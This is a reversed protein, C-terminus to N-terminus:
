TTEKETEETISVLRAAHESYIGASKLLGIVHIGAETLYPDEAKTYGILGRTFVQHSVAACIGAKWMDDDKAHLGVLFRIQDHTLSLSFGRTVYERLRINMVM